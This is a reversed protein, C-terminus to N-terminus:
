PIHWCFNYYYSSTSGSVAQAQGTEVITDESDFINVNVLTPSIEIENGTAPDIDIFRVRIRVTDNVLVNGATM